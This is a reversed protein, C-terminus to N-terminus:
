RWIIQGCCSLEEPM